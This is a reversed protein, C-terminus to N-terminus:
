GFIGLQRASTVAQSRRRVGLKDFIQQLYWKVTGETLGLREGIERNRLGSNVMNLIEIERDLLRSCLSAEPASEDAIRPMIAAPAFGAVLKTAFADVSSTAEPGASYAEALLGTIAEGEDIFVQSWGGPEAASLAERLARRAKARDGELLAIEALLLQFTVISRMASNRRLFELWRIAVKRARVLNFRAIQIRLWATAIHENRRSPALTPYPLDDVVIDGARLADEAGAVNHSRVLVRVQEAVVMARLRDLNVEVAILHVEDLTSLAKAVDGRAFHLRASTIFGAAVEDVMGWQRIVPLYTDVLQSCRELDGVEYLAEALMLASVAAVSSGPGCRAEALELAEELQRRSNAAKGLLMLTSAFTAKVAIAPFESGPRAIAQRTEAEVKLFDNFHYLERRALMLQGVLTCSLFPFDDGLERLLSEGEVKVFNLNDRAAEILIKRHRILNALLLDDPRERGAISEATAIFHEASALSLRRTRRWALALLLMPRTRILPWALDAAEEDVRNLHGKDILRNCLLELQDALFVEDRSLRAHDLSKLEEQQEAFHISARRHYEAALSPTRDVMAEYVLKRFLSHALYTNKTGDAKWVFLGLRHATELTAGANEDKLLAACAMPTLEDLVSTAQLFEAMPGPQARLIEEDFYRFIETGIAALNTHESSVERQSSRRLCDAAIVLGSVWGDIDHCLKRSFEDDISEPRSTTLLALSEAENLRLEPWGIEVLLGLSRLRATPIPVAGRSVIITTIADRACAIWRELFELADGPLLQADEIVILPRREGHTALAILWSGEDEPDLVEWGLGAAIGAAKLVKRFTVLNDVGSRCAVWLGPRDARVLQDFWYMVASSKGSGAPGSVTVLRAAAVRETMSELVARQMRKMRHQPAVIATPIFNM